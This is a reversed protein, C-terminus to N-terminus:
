STPVPLDSPTRAANGYWHMASCADVEIFAAGCTAMASPHGQEAAHLLLSLGREPDTRQWSQGLHFLGDLDGLKASRELWERGAVDGGGTLACGLLTMARPHGVEAARQWWHRAEGLIYVRPAGEWWGPFDEVKPHAKPPEDRVALRRLNISRGPRLGSLVIGL